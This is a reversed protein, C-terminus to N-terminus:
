HHWCHGQPSLLTTIPRSMVTNLLTVNYKKKYSLFFVSLLLQHLYIWWDLQWIITHAICHQLPRRHHLWTISRLARPRLFLKIMWWSHPLHLHLSSVNHIVENMSSATDVLTNHNLSNVSYALHFWSLRYQMDYCICKRKIWCSDHRHHSWRISIRDFDKRLRLVSIDSYISYLNKYRFIRSYQGPANM